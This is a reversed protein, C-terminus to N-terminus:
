YYVASLTVKDIARVCVPLCARVCVNRVADPSLKDASYSVRQTEVSVSVM